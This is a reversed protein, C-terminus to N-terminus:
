LELPVSKSKCWGMIQKEKLSKGRDGICTFKEIQIDVSYQITGKKKEVENEKMWFRTRLAM